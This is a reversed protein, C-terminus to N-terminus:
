GLGKQVSSTSHNVIGGVIGRIWTQRPLYVLKDIPRSIPGLLMHLIDGRVVYVTVNATYKLGAIYSDGISGAHIIGTSCLLFLLRQEFQYHKEMVIM